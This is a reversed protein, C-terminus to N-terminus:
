KSEYNRARRIVLWIIIALPIWAPSWVGIWIASAWIRQAFGVMSRTAESAIKATSFTEPPVIPEAKPAEQLTVQVSSYEVRNSLFRLRGELREIEQRVRTLEQELKLTDELRASKNLHDLLREETKKLNRARSETDVYEESVDQTSVQKSIVKGLPEVGALATDFKDAPIRIQITVTRQGLSGVNEILNGVYGGAGQVTAVLQEQAAKADAVEINLSATKVLYVGKESPNALVRLYRNPASDGEKPPPEGNAGGEAIPAPAPAMAAPAAALKLANGQYGLARMRDMVEAREASKVAASHSARGGSTMTTTCIGVLVIAGIALVILLGKGRSM